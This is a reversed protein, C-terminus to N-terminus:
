HEFLGGSIRNFMSTVGLIKQTQFSFAGFEPVACNIITSGRPQKGFSAAM